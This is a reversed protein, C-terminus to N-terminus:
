RREESGVTGANLPLLPDVRSWVFPCAPASPTRLAEELVKGRVGGGVGIREQAKNRRLDSFCFM